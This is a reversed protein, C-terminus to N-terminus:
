TIRGNKISNMDFQQGECVKIAAQNFMELVKRIKDEPLGKLLFEYVKVLMVDGSLIAINTNWKEHVTPKSRRLPANDMIDDHVLSFNHFLEVAVAQNIIQKPDDKYLLYTLVTMMPRLRKGGLHMIYRIPDYLEKPSDGYHADDIHKEILKQLNQPTYIM